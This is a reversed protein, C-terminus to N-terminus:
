SALLEHPESQARIREVAQIALEFPTTRSSDLLIAGSAPRLAGVPRSVDAHDRAALDDVVNAFQIKRRANRIELPCDIYLKVKANPWIATGCDRGAAIILSDQHQDLRWAVFDRIAQTLVSRIEPISAVLSLHQSHEPSRIWEETVPQDDFLGLVGDDGSNTNFMQPTFQAAVIEAVEIGLSILDPPYLNEGSADALIAATTRYFVSTDFFSGNLLLALEHGMTTKGSGSVGDITILHDDINNESMLSNLIVHPSQSEISMTPVHFM